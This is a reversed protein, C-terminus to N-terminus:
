IQLSSIVCYSFPTWYSMTINAERLIDGTWTNCTNFINYEGKAGYFSDNEWYGRFKIHPKDGLTNIIASEIAMYQKKTVKLERIHTSSNSINPHYIIHLLSPTNLFLAKFATIPNLEGWSPTNLYTDKDGWGFELYGVERGKLLQPFLTKWERKSAEMNLIIGSHMNDYYIYVKKEVRGGSIGGKKPFFTLIYAVLSYLAIFILFIYIIWKLVRM